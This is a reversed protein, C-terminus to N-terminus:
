HYQQYSDNKLVPKKIKCAKPASEPKKTLLSDLKNSVM